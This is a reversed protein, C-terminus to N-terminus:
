VNLIRMPKLMGANTETLAVLKGGTLVSVVSGDGLQHIRARDSPCLPQVSQGHRLRLAEAETLALAPIDDLATEIPL